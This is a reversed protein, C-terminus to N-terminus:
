PLAKARITGPAPINKDASARFFWKLFSPRFPNALVNVFVPLAIFVRQCVLPRSLCAHFSKPLPAAVTPPRANVIAAAALPNSARFLAFSAGIFSSVAFVGGADFLSTVRSPAM